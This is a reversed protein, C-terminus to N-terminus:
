KYDLYTPQFNFASNSTRNIDFTIKTNNGDATFKLFSPFAPPNPPYNASNISNAESLTVGTPANNKIFYAVRDIRVLNINEIEAKILASNSTANIEAKTFGDRTKSQPIPTSPNSPNNPNNQPKCYISYTGDPCLGGGTNGGGGSNGGGSNGGGSNGGGSNGGGTNPKDDTTTNRQTEYEKLKKHLLDNTTTLNDNNLAKYSNDKTIEVISDVGNKTKRLEYFKDITSQLKTNALPFLDKAGSPVTPKDNTSTTKKSGENILANAIAVAKRIKNDDTATNIDIDKLGFMNAVQKDTYSTSYAITTFPNIHKKTSSAYMKYAEPENADAINNNNIDVKGGTSSVSLGIFNEFAYHKKDKVYSAQNNNEDKVTAGIVYDDVVTVTKVITENKDVPKTTNSDPKDTSNQDVVEPKNQNPDKAPSSNNSGGGGGGCGALILSALISSILFSNYKKM